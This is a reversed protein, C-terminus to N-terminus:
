IRLHQIFTPLIQIFMVQDYPHISFEEYRTWKAPLLSHIQRQLKEVDRRRTITPVTTLRLMAILQAFCNEAVASTDVPCVLGNGANRVACLTRRRKRSPPVPAQLVIILCIIRDFEARSIPFRTTNRSIDLTYYALQM